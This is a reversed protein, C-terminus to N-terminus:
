GARFRHQSAAELAAKSIGGKSILRARERESEREREEREELEIRDPRGEKSQRIKYRWRKGTADKCRSKADRSQSSIKSKRLPAYSTRSTARSCQIAILIPIVASRSCSARAHTYIYMYRNPFLLHFFLLLFDRTNERTEGCTL